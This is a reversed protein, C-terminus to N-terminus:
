CLPELKQEIFSSISTHIRFISNRNLRLMYLRDSGITDLAALQYPDNAQAIANALHLLLAAPANSRMVDHHTQVAVSLSRPMGCSELIWQGVQAHDVGFAAIEREMREAESLGILGEM